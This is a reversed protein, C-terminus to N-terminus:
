RLEPRDGSGVDGLVVDSSCHEADVVFEGPCNGRECGGDWGRWRDDAVPLGSTRGDVAEVGPQGGGRGVVIADFHDVEGHRSRVPMGDRQTQVLWRVYRADKDDVKVATTEDGSADVSVVM